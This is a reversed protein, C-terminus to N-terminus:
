NMTIVGDITLDVNIQLAGSVPAAPIRFSTVFANFTWLPSGAPPMAVTFATSTRALMTTRLALQTANGPV